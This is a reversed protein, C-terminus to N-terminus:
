SACQQENEPRREKSKTPGGPTQERSRRFYTYFGNRRFSIAIYHWGSNGKCSKSAWRLWVVSNVGCSSQDLQDTSRLVSKSAARSVLQTWSRSATVTQLLWDAGAEGTVDSRVCVQRAARNFSRIYIVITEERLKKYCQDINKGKSIQSPKKHVNYIESPHSHSPIVRYPESSPCALSIECADWYEMSM